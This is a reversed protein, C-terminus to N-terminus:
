YGANRDIISGDVANVTLISDKVPIAKKGNGAFITDYGVFDWVPLLYYRDSDPKRVFFYSLCVDTIVLTREGGDLYINMFVQKQFIEAIKDFPLLTVNENEVGLVEMPDMWDLVALQGYRVDACISESLKPLSYDVGAKQAATDSGYYTDYQLVPIGAYMPRLTILFSGDDTGSESQFRDRLSQDAPRISVIEYHSNGFAELADEVLKRATDADIATENGDPAADTADYQIFGRGDCDPDISVHVGRATFISLSRDSWDGRWPQMSGPKTENYYSLLREIRDNYEAILGDYDANPGYPRTELAKLAKRYQEAVNLFRENGLPDTEYFTTEDTLAEVIRRKDEASTELRGVLLVPVKSVDPVQVSADAEVHLTGGWVAGGISLVFREPAGLVTQLTERRPESPKDETAYGGAPIGYIVQELRGEAKNAVIDEEPTPVCALLLLAALLLITMRKMNPEERRIEADM